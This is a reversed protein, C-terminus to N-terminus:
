DITIYGGRFYYYEVIGQSAYDLLSHLMPVTSNNDMVYFKEVGLWKHYEIWYRLDRQQEKVILCIAVYGEPWRARASQLLPQAASTNHSAVASINLLVVAASLFSPRTM